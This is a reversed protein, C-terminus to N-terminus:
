KNLYIEHQRVDDLSIKSKDSLVFKGTALLESLWQKSDWESSFSCVREKGIFAVYESYANSAIKITKMTYCDITQNLQGITAFSLVYRLCLRVFGKM